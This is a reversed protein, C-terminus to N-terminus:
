WWTTTGPIVSTMCTPFNRTGKKGVLQDLPFEAEDMSEVGADEDEALPEYTGFRTRFFHLHSNAWGMSIQIVTHLKPLKIASPVIVGRRILTGKLRIELATKTPM